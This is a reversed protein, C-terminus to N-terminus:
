AYSKFGQEGRWTCRGLGFGRKLFSIVGEVGAPLLARIQAIPHSLQTTRELKPVEPQGSALVKKVSKRSVGVAKAIFRTGHGEDSLRLIATRTELDLVVCRRRWRGSRRRRRSGPWRRSSATRGPSCARSVWRRARRCLGAIGELDRALREEVDPSVPSVAEEAKLLLMPQEVIRARGIADASRWGAYLRAIQRVSVPETLGAVFKECGDRDLRAMPLLSKMAAQAPVTAKRVAEQVSTPLVRVLGLRQSVWSKTRRLEAALESGSRGHKEALEALLWGEELASKRRGTELRWALVLAESETVELKVAKVLDRGLAELAAVRHFGDVLVPSRLGDRAISAALRSVRGPDLVRRDAYRRDLQGIDLHLMCVM